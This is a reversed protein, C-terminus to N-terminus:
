WLVAEKFVWVQSRTAPACNRRVSRSAGETFDETLSCHAATLSCARNPKLPSREMSPDGGFDPMFRDVGVVPELRLIFPHRWVWLAGPEPRSQDAARGYDRRSTAESPIPRRLRDEPDRTGPALPRRPQQVLSDARHVDDLEPGQPDDADHASGGVAPDAFSWRCVIARRGPSSLVRTIRPTNWTTGIRASTYQPLVQAAFSAFSSM